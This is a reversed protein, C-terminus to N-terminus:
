RPPSGFDTYYDQKKRRPAGNQDGMILCLETVASRESRERVRERLQTEPSSLLVRSGLAPAEISERPEGGFSQTIGRSRPLDSRGGPAPSLTHSRLM